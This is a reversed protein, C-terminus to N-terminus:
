VVKWQSHDMQAHMARRIKVLARSLQSRVTAPTSGMIKAIQDPKMNEFYRFTILTQYKPKLKLLTKKLAIMMAIKEDKIEADSYSPNHVRAISRLISARRATSRLHNNIANTAIKYLWIRFAEEDGEKFSDFCEVVKLFVTSTIDESLTRDFLRHVCYRFVVDYHRRYLEVFAAPDSRARTVLQGNNCTADGDPM